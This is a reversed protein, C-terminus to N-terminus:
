VLHLTRSSSLLSVQVHLIVAKRELIVRLLSMRTRKHKPRALICRSRCRFNEDFNSVRSAATPELTSILTWHVLSASSQGNRVKYLDGQAEHSVYYFGLDPDSVQSEPSLVYASSTAPETYVKTLYATDIWVTVRSRM